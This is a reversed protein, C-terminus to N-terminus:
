FCIYERISALKKDGIGKVKKLDEFTSFRSKSQRYEIIRRAIEPGIGPLKELEEQSSNNVNIVIQEVSVNKNSFVASASEMEKIAKQRSLNVNM